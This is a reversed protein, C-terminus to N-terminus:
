KRSTSGARHQAFLELAKQRARAHDVIPAPYGAALREGTPPPESADFTPAPTVPGIGSPSRSRNIMTIGLAVCVLSLFILGGIVGVLILRRQTTPGSIPPSQFM